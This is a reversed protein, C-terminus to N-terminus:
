LLALVSRDALPRVVRGQLDIDRVNGDGEDAAEAQGDFAGLGVEGFETVVGRIIKGRQDLLGLFLKADKVEGFAVTQDFVICAQIRGHRLRHLGNLLPVLVQSDTVDKRENEAAQNDRDEAASRVNVKYHPMEFLIFGQLPGLNVACVLCVILVPRGLTM